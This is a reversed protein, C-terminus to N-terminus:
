SSRRSSATTRGRNMTEHQDVVVKNSNASAPETSRLPRPRERQAPPRTDSLRSRRSRRITTARKTTGGQVPAKDDGKKGGFLKM